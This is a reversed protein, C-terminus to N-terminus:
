GLVAGRDVKVGDQKKHKNGIVAVIIVAVLIILAVGAATFLILKRKVSNSNVDNSM